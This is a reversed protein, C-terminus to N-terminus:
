GSMRERKPGSNSYHYIIPPLGRCHDFQYGHFNNWRCNYEEDILGHKLNAWKPDRNLMYWLSFQDWRKLTIPYNVYDREGNEDTPWWEGEMQAITLEYWAQIFEKVEPKGSNYLCVAGCYDFSNQEPGFYYEAFIYSREDDLGSFLVDKDRFKEWCTRLDDHHVECDADIYLTQDYPSMAMGWLKTRQHVKDPPVIVIDDVFQTGGLDIMWQEAVLCVKADPDHEQISAILNLASYYYFAKRSAVVVYGKTM